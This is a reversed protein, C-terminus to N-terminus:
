CKASLYAGRAQKAVQILSLGLTIAATLKAIMGIASHLSVLKLGEQLPAYFSGQRMVIGVTQGDMENGHPLNLTNIQEPKHRRGSAAQNPVMRDNRAGGSAPILIAVIITRIASVM